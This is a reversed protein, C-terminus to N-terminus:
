VLLHSHHDVLDIASVIRLVGTDSCEGGLPTMGNGAGDLHQVEGVELSIIRIGETSSDLDTIFDLLMAPVLDDSELRTIGHVTRMFLQAVHRHLSDIGIAQHNVHQQAFELGTINRSMHAIRRNALHRFEVERRVAHHHRAITKVHEIGTRTFGYQMGIETLVHAGGIENDTAVMRTDTIVITIEVSLGDKVVLNRFACHLDLDEACVMRGVGLLEFSDHHHAIRRIM